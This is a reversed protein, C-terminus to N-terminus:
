PSVKCVRFGIGGNIFYTLVNNRYSVTSNYDPSYYYGGRLLRSTGSSAGHPDTQAENPYAGYIDWVWEDVNGSMDYLGLENAAKTGVTHTISGSNDQYWAVANLDNSGSYTYGQSLNGGKAAFMWEMETPLRYCNVTWNCTVNSHNASSTNWGVPWNDPNTGFTSYSYCPSLGEQMSRRNCYEIANFWTVQEVPGNTVDPYYSPNVGMVAEYAIQTLEYKDLYFSSITVDSTGNNFTGGPIYVMQEPPSSIVFDATAVASNNWGAMYAQAKLTTSTSITLPASYVASSATPTSGDTTYIIAAGSTSCTITVTQATSYSGAAPSFAPTAVTQVVPDTPKEKCSVLFALAALVLFVLLFRKQM